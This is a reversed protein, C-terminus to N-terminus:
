QYYCLKARYPVLANLFMNAAKFGRNSSTHDATSLNIAAVFRNYPAGLPTQPISFPTASTIDTALQKGASDGPKYFRLEGNTVVYSYRDAIFSTVIVSQSVGQANQLTTEIPRPLPDSLTVTRNPNGNGVATIDYEVQHLPFCLRQGVKPLYGPFAVTVQNQGAAAPAALQFPGAAYVLFSLGAAPGNGTLPTRNGDVLRPISVANHLSTEMTLVAVRAQQHALNVSTNKAFLVMGTNLVYFIVGGMLAMVSSAVLLEVLTFAGSQHSRHHM